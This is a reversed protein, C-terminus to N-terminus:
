KKIYKIIEKTTEHNVQNGSLYNITLTGNGYNEFIHTIPVKKEFMNWTADLPVWEGDIKALTWAHKSDSISKLANPNSKNFENEKLVNDETIDLAYGSVYIAPIGQSVLLTNYLLTFHECVGTKMNYIEKATFKKGHYSLNYKLNNHVWKGLKKYVPTNTNDQQIIMDSLSKFFQKDEDPIKTILEPNEIFAYNSTTNEANLKIGISTKNTKLDKFNFIYQNKVKDDIFEGNNNIIQYNNLKLNGDKFLRNTTFTCEGINGASSLTFEKYIDWEAKQYCFEFYEHLKEEKSIGNFYYINNYKPSKRFIEKSSLVVYNEPIRLIIKCYANKTDTTIFSEKRILSKDSNTYYKYKILIEAFQNNTIGFNKISISTNDKSYETNKGNLLVSDVSYKTNLMLGISYTSLSYGEGYNIVKVKFLHTIDQGYDTIVINKYVAIVSISKVKNSNLNIIQSEYNRLEPIYKYITYNIKKSYYIFGTEFDSTTKGEFYALNLEKELIFKKNTIEDIQINDVAYILYQTYMDKGVISLQEIKYNVLQKEIEQIAKIKRTQGNSTKEFNIKIVNNKMECNYDNIKVDDVYIEKSKLKNVEYDFPFWYNDYYSNPNDLKVSLICDIEINISNESIKMKKKINKIFIGDRYDPESLSDLNKNFFNNIFSDRENIDIQFDQSLYPDSVKTSNRNVPVENYISLSLSSDNLTNKKYSPQTLSGINKKNNSSECCGM